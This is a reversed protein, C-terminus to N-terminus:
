GAAADAGGGAPLAHVLARILAVDAATLDIWEGTDKPDTKTVFVDGVIVSDAVRVNPSLGLLRGEENCVLVYGHPLTVAEIYGGVLTQLTSLNDPDVNTLVPAQGIRYWLVKM